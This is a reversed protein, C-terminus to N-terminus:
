SLAFLPKGSLGGTEQAHASKLRSRQSITTNGVVLGDIGSAMIIEAIDTQEDETLDPAIKVLIPVHNGQQQALERRTTTVANVLGALMDKKQLQRLGPTNPSSINLTIYDCSDYVARLMTLYDAKDDETDKNKGINAGMVVQPYIGRKAKFEKLKLIYSESGKNPMGLRNIIASDETLRFLRPRPNGEQPRPTSTGTEIFGFGQHVLGPIAEANKDFGASLGIPNKFDLNFHRSALMPDSIEPQKPLLNHKLAFLAIKHAKEPDFRYIFPQVLPFYDFM